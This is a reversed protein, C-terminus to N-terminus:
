RWRKNVYVVLSIEKNELLDYKNLNQTIIYTLIQLTKNEIINILNNEKEILIKKLEEEIYIIYSTMLILILATATILFGQKKYM